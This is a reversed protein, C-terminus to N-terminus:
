FIVKKGIKNGNADAAAIKPVTITKKVLIYEDTYDSLSSNLM